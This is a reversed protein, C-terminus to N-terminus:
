EWDEPESEDDTESYDSWEGMDDHEIEQTEDVVDDGVVFDNKEYIAEKSEKEWLKSGYDGHNKGAFGRDYQDCMGTGSGKMYEKDQFREPAKIRRGFRTKADLILNKEKFNKQAENNRILRGLFSNYEFYMFLPPVYSKPLLYDLIDNIIYENINSHPILQLLYEFVLNRAEKNFKYYFDNLSLYNGSWVCKGGRLNRHPVSIYSLAPNEPFEQKTSGLMLNNHSGYLQHKSEGTHSFM